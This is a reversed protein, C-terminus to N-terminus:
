VVSKRDRQIFIYYSQVVPFRHAPNDYLPSLNVIHGRPAPLLEGIVM